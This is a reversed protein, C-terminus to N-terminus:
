WKKVWAVYINKVDGSLEEISKETHKSYGLELKVNQDKGIKLRNGLKLGYQYYDVSTIENTLYNIDPYYNGYVRQYFIDGYADYQKTFAKSLTIDGYLRTSKYPTNPINGSGFINIDFKYRDRDLGVYANLDLNNDFMYYYNIMLSNSVGEQLYYNIDDNKKVAISYDLDIGSRDNLPNSIYLNTKYQSKPTNKYYPNDISEIIERLKIQTKNVKGEIGFSNSLLWENDVVGSRRTDKNKGEYKFRWDKGLNYVLGYLFTVTSSPIQNKTAYDVNLFRINIPSNEEKDEYKLKLYFKLEKVPYFTIIANSNNYNFEATKQNLEDRKNNNINSNTFSIAYSIQGTQNSYFVLQKYNKTISPTVDIQGGESNDFTKDKLNALELLALFNIGGIIGDLSLQYFENNIDYPKSTSYLNYDLPVSDLRSRGYFRKQKEGKKNLEEIFVRIHYPLDTPRIKFFLSNRSLDAFYNDTPKYDIYDNTYAFGKHITNHFFDEVRMELRIFDKYDYQLHFNLDDKNLFNIEGLYKHHGTLDAFNLLFLPSSSLPEYESILSPEKDKSIFKYGVSFSYEGKLLPEEGFSNNCFIFFLASFIVLFRM